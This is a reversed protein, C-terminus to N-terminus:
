IYKNLVKYFFVFYNFISCFRLWVRICLYYERVKLLGLFENDIFIVVYYQLM